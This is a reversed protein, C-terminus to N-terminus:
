RNSVDNVFEEFQEDTMRNVFKALVELTEEDIKELWKYDELEVIRDLEEVPLVGYRSELIKNLIESM